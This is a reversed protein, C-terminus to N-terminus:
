SRIGHENHASLLQNGGQRLGDCMQCPETYLHGHVCRSHRNKEITKNAKVAAASLKLPGMTIARKLAAIRRRQAVLAEGEMLISAQEAHHLKARQRCYWQADGNAEDKEKQVVGHAVRRLVDLGWENMAFNAAVCTIRTNELTYGMRGDIRDISPWYPREVLAHPVREDDFELGSVACRGECREWLIDLDDRTLTFQTGNRRARRQTAQWKDLVAPHLDSRKPYILQHQSLAMGM